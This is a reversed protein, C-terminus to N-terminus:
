KQAYDAYSELTPTYVTKQPGITDRVGSSGETDETTLHERSREVM